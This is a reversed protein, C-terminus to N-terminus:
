VPSVVCATASKGRSSRYGVLVCSSAGWAIAMMMISGTRRVMAGNLEGSQQAFAMGLGALMLVVVGVRCCSGM